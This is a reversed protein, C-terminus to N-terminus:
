FRNLNMESSLVEIWRPIFTARPAGLQGMSRSLLKCRQHEPVLLVDHLGLVQPEVESGQVVEFLHVSVLLDHLLHTHM